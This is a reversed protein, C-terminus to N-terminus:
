SGLAFFSAYDFTLSVPFEKLCEENLCTVNIPAMGAKEGLELLYQQVKKIIKNDANNYFETIHSRNTVISGSELEISKTSDSLLNINLEIVKSLHQDFRVKANEPDDEISALSRLIQQEEFAIMNTKNLSFYPQPHVHIKLSDVLLPIDYSPPDISTLMRGLDIAYEHTQNCHLCTAGFDMQNGYSAIRIAILAADVDISPMAWADKIDPCCSEIVNVIGQGNLLADPTKLTIEDKTTMPMVGIEGNPPYTLAEAPWYKGGSPLKFYVAPQRFHTALPNTSTNQDM